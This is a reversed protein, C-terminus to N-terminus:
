DEELDILETNLATAIKCSVLSQENCTNVLIWPFVKIKKLQSQFMFPLGGLVRIESYQVLM